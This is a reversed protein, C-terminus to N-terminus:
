VEKFTISVFKPNDKAIMTLGLELAKCLVLSEVSHQGTIRFDIVAKKQDAEVKMGVDTFKELSNLTNLMLVSIASCVIDSGSEAYGAHGKSKVGVIEDDSKFITIKTM